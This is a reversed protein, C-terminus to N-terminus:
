RNAIAPSFVLRLSEPVRKQISDINRIHELAGPAAEIKTLRDLLVEFAIRAELRAVPAGLCRHAGGGFALHYKAVHRRDLDFAAAESWTEDRNASGYLLLVFSGAPIPVGGLETDEVCLRSVWQTPSELRLSEEIAAGILSRDAIVRAMAEPDRLLLLMTNTILRQTTENGATLILRLESILYPLNVGGDRRISAAIFDSLFDDRPHAQRELILDRAYAMQDVADDRLQSVGAADMFRRGHISSMSWSLFRARDRDPFGALHCIVMLALPAAFQSRFEAEGDAAFGDVLGEALKRIVPEAALLRERDVLSAAARRKATHEPPDSVAMNFPTSLPCSPLEPDALGLVERPDDVIRPDARYGANSFIEPRQLVSMIEARRAVLFDGSDPDRQVCPQERLAAYFPFPCQALEPSAFSL